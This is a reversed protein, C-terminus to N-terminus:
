HFMGLLLFHWVIIGQSLLFETVEFHGHRTALALPTQLLSDVSFLQRRFETSNMAKHMAKIENIEGDSAMTCLSRM